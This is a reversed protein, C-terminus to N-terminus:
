YYTYRKVKAIHRALRIVQMTYGFENDYWLYVLINKGDASVQTSPSDFICSVPDGIFDSSVSENSASFRIQEVYAGRLAEHRLMEIVEERSTKRKVSLSLIALSVNAVPVRVANSTLKGALSPIAKAAASGAGTSTIVMNLPAARGRRPKKHYNDLLNQDNTYAHVSEIHGKEIGLEKEIVSLPPVIANTTCSAASWINDSDPDYQLHNVGYVINKIDGKGPATLIVKSIGGAKLHRGLGERDRFVGTNDILLANQIGYEEYNIDEPNRTELMKIIHGNIYLNRNDVDELVNGRFPGHISDHRMLSARKSVDEPSITRTVVARPRIQDGNGQIILERLILRGIRGFGYLVVDSPKDYKPPQGIIHNLKDSVFQSPDNNYKVKEEVWEHNMKGIDIKSPPLNLKYIANALILTDQIKLTSGIVTRAYSHKNLIVSASRDIIQNRLFNLEISKDYFLRSLVNIFETGAKEDDQWHKLTDVYAASEKSIVKSNEM